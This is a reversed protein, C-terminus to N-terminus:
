TFYVCVSKSELALIQTRTPSGMLQFPGKQWPIPQSGYPSCQCREPLGAHQCHVLHLEPQSGSFAPKLGTLPNALGLTVKHM